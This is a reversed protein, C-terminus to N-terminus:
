RARLVDPDECHLHPEGSSHPASKQMLSPIISGPITRLADRFLLEFHEIAHGLAFVGDTQPLLVHGANVIALVDVRDCKGTLKTLEAEHSTEAEM